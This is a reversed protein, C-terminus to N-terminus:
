KDLFIKLIKEFWNLPKNVEKKIKIYDGQIIKVQILINYTITLAEKLSSYWGFVAPSFNFMPVKNKIAQLEDQIYYVAYERTKVPIKKVMDFGDVLRADIVRNCITKEKIEIGIIQEDSMDYEFTLPIMMEIQELSLKNYDMM